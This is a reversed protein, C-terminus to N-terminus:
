LLGFAFRQVLFNAFKCPSCSRECHRCQPQSLGDAFAPGSVPPHSPLGKRPHRQTCSLKLTRERQATGALIQVDPGSFPSPRPLQVSTPHFRLSFQKLLTWSAYGGQTQVSIHPIGCSVSSLSSNTPMDHPSSAFESPAYRMHLPIFPIGITKQYTIGLDLM